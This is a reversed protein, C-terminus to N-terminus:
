SSRLRKWGIALRLGPAGAATSPSTRVAAQGAGPPRSEAQEGREDLVVGALHLGDPRVLGEQLVHDLRVLADHQEAAGLVPAAAAQLQGRRLELHQRLVPRSALRACRACRASRRACRSRDGGFM